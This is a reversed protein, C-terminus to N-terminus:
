CNKLFDDRIIFFHSATVDSNPLKKDKLYRMGAKKLLNKSAINNPMTISELFPLSTNEFMWEMIATIAEYGYGKGWYKKHFAFCLNTNIRSLTVGGQGMFIPNKPDSNEFIAWYSFGFKIQHELIFNFVDRAYRGDKPGSIFYRMVDPDQHLKLFDEFDGEAFPKILLRKTKIPLTQKM